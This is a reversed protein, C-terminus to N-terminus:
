AKRAIFLKDGAILGYQAYKSFEPQFIEAIFGAQQLRMVFDRGYYRTTNRHGFYKIRDQAQANVDEFTTNWGDILNVTIFGMGGPRLIRYMEKLAFKDNPVEDLVNNCIIIDFADNCLGLRTIDLALDLGHGYNLAEKRVSMDTAVYKNATQRVFEAICRDPAFHLVDKGTVLCEGNQIIALYMLRHRELSECQPCRAEARNQNGFSLFWGNYGCIPCLRPLTMSFVESLRSIYYLKEYKQPGRM